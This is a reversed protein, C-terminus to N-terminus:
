FHAWRERERESLRARRCEAQQRRARAPCADYRALNTSDHWTIKEEGRNGTIQSKWAWRCVLPLPLPPSSSSSYQISPLPWWNVRQRVANQSADLSWISHQVSGVETLFWCITSNYAYHESELHHGKTRRLNHGQCVCSMQRRALQPILSNVAM